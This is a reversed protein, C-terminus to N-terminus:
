GGLAFTLYRGETIAGRVSKFGAESYAAVNTSQAGYPLPPRQVPYLAECHSSGDYAGRANTHPAPADPLNPLSYGPKGFDFAGVLNSMHERRWPVMQDTKVNFDKAALWEEIFMIQSNHDSHETFVHGGRTWPSVMYFPLRFGPGSYTNGFINYPDQLWEGPTGPPSHYPTVHDGFGGTEDFSIM